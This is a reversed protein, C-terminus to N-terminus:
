ATLSRVWKDVDVDYGKTATLDLANGEPDWVRYEAFARDAPRPGQRIDPDLRALTAEANAVVIGIHNFGQRPESEPTTNPYPHLTLNTFGDGAFRNARGAARRQHSSTLERLGFVECYFQLGREPDPVSYTVHHIGPFRRRPSPVGFDRTSLSVPLGYPDIMRYEGHFLDGPEPLLEGGSYGRLREAIEEISEVAFGLHHLGLPESDPGLSPRAKLVSLNFHGDTLAVDGETSRGLEDMQFTSSYFEALREPDRSVIAVYRIIPM